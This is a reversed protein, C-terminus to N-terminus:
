GTQVTPNRALAVHDDDVNRELEVPIRLCEVRPEQREDLLGSSCRAADGVVVQDIRDLRSPPVQELSPRRVLRELRVVGRGLVDLHQREAREGVPHAIQEDIAPVAEVLMTGRRAARGVLVDVSSLVDVRQDGVHLGAMVSGGAPLGNEFPTSAGHGDGVVDEDDIGIRM